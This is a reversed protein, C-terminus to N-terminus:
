AATFSVEFSYAGYQTGLGSLVYVVDNAAVTVDYSAVFNKHVVGKDNPALIAQEYSVASILILTETGATYAFTLTGAQTATYKYFHLYAGWEGDLYTDATTANGNTGTKVIYPDAETGSGQVDIVPDSSEPKESVTLTCGASMSSLWDAGGPNKILHLTHTGATLELLVATSTAAYANSIAGGYKVNAPNNRNNGDNARYLLGDGGFVYYANDIEVVAGYVTLTSGTPQMTGGNIEDVTVPASVPDSIAVTYKGEGTIALTFYAEDAATLPQDTVLTFPSEASGTVPTYKYGCASCAGDAGDTNHAETQTRHSADNGCVKYHGTGDTYIYGGYGHADANVPTAAAFQVSVGNKDYTYTVTGASACTATDDTKAYVSDTLKPLIYERDSSPADCDQGGCTRTAKGTAADTPKNAETVSWVSWKHIHTKKDEGAKGCAAFGTATFIAVATLLATSLIRKKM